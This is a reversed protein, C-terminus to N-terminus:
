AMENEWQGSREKLECCDFVFPAVKFDASVRGTDTTLLTKEALSSYRTKVVGAQIAHDGVRYSKQGQIRAKGAPFREALQGPLNGIANQCGLLRLYGNQSVLIGDTDCYLVNERGALDFIELLRVRAYSCITAHLFPMAEYPEGAIKLWRREDQLVQASVLSQRDEPSTTSGLWYTGGIQCSWPQWEYKQRATFGLSANFMSKVAGSMLPAYGGQKADRARFYWSAYEALVPAAEYRAARLIKKARGAKIAHRLEPWALATVFDGVPYIPVGNWRLPYDASNTSLVVDAIWHDDGTVNVADVPLGARYEEKCYVPLCEHRCIAGYCSKVDLSYTVGAVDGLYFAENRGAHYSRRELSRSEPDLNVHLSGKYMGRRAHDWGLQAATTKCVSVGVAKTMGLFDRLAATATEATVDELRDVYAAPDVGFNLWDLAKIQNRGCVLDVELIRKNWTLKGGHKGKNKGARVKPLAVEGRSLAGTFDAMDFAYRVRWGILWAKGRGFCLRALDDWLTEYSDRSCSDVMAGFEVSGGAYVTLSYGKDRCAIVIWTDQAAKGKTARLPRQRLAKSPEGFQADRTRM